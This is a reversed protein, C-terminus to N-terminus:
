LNNDLHMAKFIASLTQTSKVKSNIVISDMKVSGTNVLQKNLERMAKEDGGRYKLLEEISRNLGQAQLTQTEPFSLSAVKSDGRSTPQGTMEDVSSSDHPISVKKELVQAQKRLPLDVVMYPLKTKYVTQTDPDTLWLKEFFSHGLEKAIKLNRNIDVRNKKDMNPMIISLTEEGSRLQHMYADFDKDSMKALMVEYMKKNDGGPIIKDVWKLIEETAKKRNKGM